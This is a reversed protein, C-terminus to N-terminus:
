IKRSTLTNCENTGQNAFHRVLVSCNDAPESNAVKLLRPSGLAPESEGKSNLSDDDCQRHYDDEDKLQVSTLKPCFTPRNDLSLTGNATTRM